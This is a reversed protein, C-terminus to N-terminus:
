SPTLAPVASVAFLLALLQFSIGMSRVSGRGRLIVRWCQSRKCKETEKEGWNEGGYKSKMMHGRNMQKMEIRARGM